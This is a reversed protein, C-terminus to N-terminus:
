YVNFGRDTLVHPFTGNTGFKMGARCEFWVKVLTKWCYPNKLKVALLLCKQEYGVPLDCEVHGLCKWLSMGCQAVSSPHSKPGNLLFDSCWHSRIGAYKVCAKLIIRSDYVSDVTRWHFITYCSVCRYIHLLIWRLVQILTGMNM